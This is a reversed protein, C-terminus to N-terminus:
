RSPGRHFMHDRATGNPAGPDCNSSNKVNERYLGMHFM